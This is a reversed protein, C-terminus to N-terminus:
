HVNGSSFATLHVKFTTNELYILLPLFVGNFCTSHATSYSASGYNIWWNTLKECVGDFDISIGFWLLSCCNLGPWDDKAAAAFAHKKKHSRDWWGCRMRLDSLAEM